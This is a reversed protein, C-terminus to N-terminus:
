LISIMYFVTMAKGLEYCELLLIIWGYLSLNALPKMFKSVTFMTHVIWVNGIGGEKVQHWNKVEYNDGM